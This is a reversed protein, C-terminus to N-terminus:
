KNVKFPSFLSSSTTLNATIIKGDSTVEVDNLTFNGGTIGSTNLNEILDGTNADLILVNPRSVVYVRYNGNVLTFISVRNQNTNFFIKVTDNLTISSDLFAKASGSGSLVYENPGYNMNGVDNKKNVVIFKVTDNIVLNSIRNLKIETVLNNTRTSNGFYKNYLILTNARVTDNVANITKSYNQPAIVTASFGINDIILKKFKDIAFAPRQSIRGFTYEEDLIMSGVLFTYPNYPNSIGFFDGNIAGIVIHGSKSKRKAMSSTKEFGTGLM